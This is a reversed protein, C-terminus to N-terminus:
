VVSKRDGICLLGAISPLVFEPIPFFLSNSYPSPLKLWDTEMQNPLACHYYEPWYADAPFDGGMTLCYVLTQGETKGNIEAVLESKGDNDVDGWGQGDEQRRNVAMWDTELYYGELEGTAGDTVIPFPALWVVEQAGDGDIDVILQYGSWHNAQAGAPIKGTESWETFNAEWITYPTAAGIDIVFVGDGTMLAMDMSGDGNVDGMPNALRINVGERPHVWRGLEIGYFSVIFVASSPQDTWVVAEYEDDNNVDAVIVQNTQMNAGTPFRWKEGGTNANLCYLNTDQSAFLVEIVDDLDIDALTVMGENAKGVQASRWVTEGTNSIRTVFGGAADGNDAIFFEINGDGDVDMAQPAGHMATNEVPNDWTWVVSGDPKLVHLRGGRGAICVENVGDNNVDIFTAKTTPDGPLGPEGIPPYIWQLDGSEGNICWYRKSDGRRTGFLLEMTGDGDIDHIAFGSQHGAGFAKDPFVASTNFTWELELGMKLEEAVVHSFTLVTAILGILLIVKKM